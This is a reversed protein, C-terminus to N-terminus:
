SAAMVPLSFFIRTGYQSGDERTFVPSEAAIKGGHAQVLQKVIALGLGSGGSSRSRSKEARYFRDFVYPLDALAIGPGTDSISIHLSNDGEFRSVIIKIEGGAPTYRVANTILNNMLQTIRDPDVWIEPLNIQLELSLTIQRAQAIPKGREVIQEFLAAPPVVSRELVLEGSDALSLLRLDGVLRTLLTTDALLLDVQERDLPLLGDQIGELTGQMAALPTRLEHAVDAIMNKRQTEAKSLSQAMKNFSEGLAGLEDRSQIAVRQNLDGAAIAAAAKNLKRVPSIIQFFLVAGFILAIIAAIGTSSAIANNVSALFDSAPTGAAFNDPTVILTGVLSNSSILSVGNALDTADLITGILSGNTDAIVEGNKDALILRQDAAMMTTGASGKGKGYGNGQGMAGGSGMTMSGGLNLLYTGVGQWSNAQSYYEVLTPSLTEAWVKSNRTTYLNFAQETSRSTLFAMVVAGIAIVLLFAILLKFLLSSKM